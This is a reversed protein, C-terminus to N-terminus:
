SRALWVAVAVLVGGSFRQQQRAFSPHRRLWGAVAGAGIAFISGFIIGVMSVIMGLLVFQLFLHGRESRVFQPLFALFFLASKPNLLNTVLARRFAVTVPLNSSGAIQPAEQLIMRIGIFALYGVGAFKVANFALPSAALLASLGLATALTHVMTGLEVGAVTALGAARGSLGQALIIMTNPGPVLVLVILAALFGLLQSADFM